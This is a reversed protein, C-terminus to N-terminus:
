TKGRVCRRRKLCESVQQEGDELGMEALMDCVFDADSFPDLKRMVEVGQETRNAEVGSRAHGLTEAQLMLLVTETEVSHVPPDAAIPHQQCPAEAPPDEPQPECQDEMSM